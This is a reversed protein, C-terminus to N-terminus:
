VAREQSFVQRKLQRESHEWHWTMVSFNRASQNRPPIYRLGALEVAALSCTPGYDRFTPRSSPELIVFPSDPPFARIVKNSIKEAAMREVLLQAVPKPIFTSPRADIPQYHALFGVRM